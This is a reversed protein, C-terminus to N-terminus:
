CRIYVMLSKLLVKLGAAGITEDWRAKPTLFKDKAENRSKWARQISRAAEADSNSTNDQKSSTNELDSM